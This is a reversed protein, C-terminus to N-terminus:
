LKIKEYTGRNKFEILGKDRLFQLQQRIKDKVFNNNPYKQKLQGEFSYIDKLTFTEKQIADICNM